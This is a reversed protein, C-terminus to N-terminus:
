MKVGSTFGPQRPKGFLIELWDLRSHQEAAVNEERAGGTQLRTAGDRPFTANGRSSLM